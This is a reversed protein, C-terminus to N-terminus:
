DTVQWHVPHEFLQSTIVYSLLFFFFSHLLSKQIGRRRYNPSVFSDYLVAVSQHFIIENAIEWAYYTTTYGTLWGYAILENNDCCYFLRHGLNFRKKALERFSDECYVETLQEISSAVKIPYVENYQYKSGRIYYCLLKCRCYRNIASLIFVYINRLIKIM